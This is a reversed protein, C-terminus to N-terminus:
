PSLIQSLPCKQRRESRFPFTTLRKHKVVSNAPNWLAKKEISSIEKKKRVKERLIFTNFKM